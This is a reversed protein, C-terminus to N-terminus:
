LGLEAWLKEIPRSPKGDKAWKELVQHAWFEEEIEALHAELAARIYFASSRGTKAALTSLRHELELPLRVAIPKSVAM